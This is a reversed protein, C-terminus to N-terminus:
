EGGGREALQHVSVVRPDAKPLPVRLFYLEYFHLFSINMIEYAEIHSATCCRIHETYGVLQVLIRSLVKGVPAMLLSPASLLLLLTHSTLFTHAAPAIKKSSHLLFCKRQICSFVTLFPWGNVM